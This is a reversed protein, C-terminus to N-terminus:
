QLSHRESGCFQLQRSRASSKARSVGGAEMIPRAHQEFIAPPLAGQHIRANIHLEPDCGGGKMRQRKPSKLDGAGTEGFIGKLITVM